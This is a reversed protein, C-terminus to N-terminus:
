HSSNLRTSKRDSTIVAANVDTAPLGALMGSVLVITLVKYQRSKHYM